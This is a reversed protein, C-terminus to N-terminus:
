NNLEPSFIKVSMDSMLLHTVVRIKINNCIPMFYVKVAVVDISYKPFDRRSSLEITM